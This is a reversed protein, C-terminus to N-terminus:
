NLVQISQNIFIEWIFSQNHELSFSYSGLGHLKSNDINLMAAMVQYFSYIFHHGYGPTISKLM